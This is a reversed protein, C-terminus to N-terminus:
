YFKRIKCVGSFSPIPPSLLPSLPSVSPSKVSFELIRAIRLCVHIKKKKLQFQPPSLHVVHQWNVHSYNKPNVCSRKKTLNQTEIQHPTIELEQTIEHQCSAKAPNRAWTYRAPVDKPHGM